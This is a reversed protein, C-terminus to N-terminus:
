GAANEAEADVADVWVRTAEDVNGPCSGFCHVHAELVLNSRRWHYTVQTGSGGVWLVWAEDGLGQINADKTVVGTKKGWGRSFANLAAIGTRADSASAYVQAVLNGLKDDDRWKHGEETVIDLAATQQNLATLLPDPPPDSDASPTSSSPEEPDAPWTWSPAVPSVSALRAADASEFSSEQADSGGCGAVLLAAIVAVV